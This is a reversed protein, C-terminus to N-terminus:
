HQDHTRVTMRPCVVGRPDDICLRRTEITVPAVVQLAAVALTQYPVRM